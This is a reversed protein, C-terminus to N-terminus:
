QPNFYWGAITVALIVAVIGLIWWSQDRDVPQTSTVPDLNGAQDAGVKPFTMKLVVPEPAKKSMPTPVYGRVSLPAAKPMRLVKAPKKRPKPKAKKVM